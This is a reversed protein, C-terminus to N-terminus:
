VQNRNSELRSLVFVLSGSQCLWIPTLPLFFASFVCTSRLRPSIRRRPHRESNLVREM